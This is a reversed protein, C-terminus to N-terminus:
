PRFVNHRHFELASESPHFRPDDPKQISIGGLAAYGTGHLSSSTLIKGECSIAILGEDFLRHLDVRLCIGNQPHNSREDIYTQIHAAELIEQLMEGSVACRFGYNNLIKWRFQPQNSRDKRSTTRKTAHGQVLEFSATSSALGKFKDALNYPDSFYKLKVVQNPFSHGYHEPILSNDDDAAFVNRLEMCGIIPDSVPEFFESRKAAFGQVKRVLDLENAVGNTLGYASWAQSTTMEVYRVFIGFGGIKRVPAKVMFYLRDGSHLGRISWPTPTWFNVTRSIFSGRITEFWDLDTPAIAFM